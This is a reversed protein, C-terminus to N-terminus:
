FMEHQAYVEALSKQNKKVINVLIDDRRGKLLKIVKKHM